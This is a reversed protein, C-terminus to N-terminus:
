LHVIRLPITKNASEIRSEFDFTIPAHTLPCARGQARILHLRAAPPASATSPLQAICRCKRLESRSLCSAAMERRSREIKRRKKRRKEMKGIIKGEERCHGFKFFSFLLSLLQKRGGADPRGHILIKDDHQSLGLPARRQGSNEAKDRADM